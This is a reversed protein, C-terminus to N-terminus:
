TKFDSKSSFLLARSLPDKHFNSSLTGLPRIEKEEDRLSLWTSAVFHHLRNRGRVGPSPLSAPCPLAPSPQAPSPQAPSPMAQEARSQERVAAACSWQQAWFSLYSPPNIKRSSWLSCCGDRDDSHILTEASSTKPLWQGGSCARCAPAESKMTILGEGLNM